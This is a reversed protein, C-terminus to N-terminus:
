DEIHVRSRLQNAEAQSLDCIEAIERWGIRGGQEKRLKLILSIQKDSFLGLQQWDAFSMANANVLIHEPHAIYLHHKISQYASDSLGYVKGIQGARTFAGLYNKYALIHQIIGLPLNTKQQWENATATNIELKWDIEENGKLVHVSNYKKWAFTKSSIQKVQVYPRLLSFLDPSLGYLRAFDDPSKFYGGKLRYHLLSKVQKEPLGLQIAQVSDITNPDFYFLHAAPDNKRAHDHLSNNHPLLWSLLVSGFLICGLVVIGKIEKQSFYFYAKWSAQIM